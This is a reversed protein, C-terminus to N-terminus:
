ANFDWKTTTVRKEQVTNKTRSHIAYVKIKYKHRQIIVWHNPFTGNKLHHYLIAPKLSVSQRKAIEIIEPISYEGEPLIFKNFIM